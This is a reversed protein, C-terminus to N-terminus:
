NAVMEVSWDISFKLVKEPPSLCVFNHAWVYQLKKPFKTSSILRNWQIWLSKKELALLQYNTSKRSCKTTPPSLNSWFIYHNISRLVVNLLCTIQKLWNRWLFYLCNRIFTALLSLLREYLLCISKKRSVCNYLKFQLELSM